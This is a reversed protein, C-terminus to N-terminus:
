GAEAKGSYDYFGRGTKRGLLGAAMRRRGIVSPRYIPDDYFQAHIAETVPQSVDLGTLDFLEFPGMRFGAARMIRDIEAPGAIGESLIRLAEPGYGRGVHNVLFGPTDEVRVAKKGMRGAVDLLTEVVWGATRLGSVVEVLDMLPVPNFFHLGAVREPAKCVAAIETVSLSSTNTALITTDLAIEELQRFLAQKASLDEVIAEVVLDCSAFDAPDPVSHLRAKASEAAAADMRGKEVQRALMGAVFAVAEDCAGPRSDFLKVAFGGAAAVQAIGRGMAGAGVIGVTRVDGKAAM